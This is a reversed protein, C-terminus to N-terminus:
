VIQWAGISLRPSTMAGATAVHHNLLGTLREAKDPWGGESRRPADM